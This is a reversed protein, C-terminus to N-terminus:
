AVGWGSRQLLRVEWEVRVGESAAEVAAVLREAAKRADSTSAGPMMIAFEAADLRFCEDTSRVLSSLTELVAGTVYGRLGCLVISVPYGYREAQRLEIKRRERFRETHNGSALLGQDHSEARIEKRVADMLVRAISGTMARAIALDEDDFFCEEASVLRVIGVAPGHVFLPVIMLSVGPDAENVVSAPLRPDRHINPSRLIRGESFASGGISISIEQSRGVEHALHPTAFCTILFDERELDVVAGDAGVLDTLHNLILHIAEAVDEVGSAEAEVRALAAVREPDSVAFREM